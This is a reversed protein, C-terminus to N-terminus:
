VKTDIIKGKYPHEIDARKSGPQEGGPKKPARKTGGSGPSHQKGTEDPEIKSSLDPHPKVENVRNSEAQSQRAVEEAKAMQTLVAGESERQHPRNADSLRLLLAQLDVPLIAM